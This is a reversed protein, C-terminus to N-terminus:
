RHTVVFSPDIEGKEIRDLVLLLIYVCALSSHDHGIDLERSLRRRTLITSWTSGPACALRSQKWVRSKKLGGKVSKPRHNFPNKLNM